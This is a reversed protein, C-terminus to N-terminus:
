SSAMFLIFDRVKISHLRTQKQLLMNLSHYSFTYLWPRTAGVNGWDWHWLSPLGTASIFKESWVSACGSAIYQM